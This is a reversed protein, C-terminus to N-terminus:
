NVRAGCNKCFQNGQDVKSGCQTCFTNSTIKKPSTKMASGQKVTFVGFGVAALLLVIALYFGAKFDAQIMGQGERMVDDNIKASLSLLALTGLGGALASGIGGIRGKILSLVLGALVFILAIVALPEGPQREVEPEGFLTPVEYTTGTAVQLGTFGQVEEGGCNMSVWPMFFCILALAFLAPLAAKTM